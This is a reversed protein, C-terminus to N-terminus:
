LQITNLVINASEGIKLSLITTEDRHAVPQKFYTVQQCPM